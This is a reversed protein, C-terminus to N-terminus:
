REDTGAYSSELKDASRAIVRLLLDFDHLTMAAIAASYLFCYDGDQDLALGGLPFDDNMQLAVRPSMEDEKCVYTRFELFTQDFTLFKHVGVLQSRGHDFTFEISFGEDDDNNLAYRARVHAKLEAWTSM